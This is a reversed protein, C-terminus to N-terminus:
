RNLVVRILLILVEDKVFHLFIRGQINQYGFEVAYEFAYKMYDTYATKTQIINLRNLITREFSDWINKSEHIEELSM